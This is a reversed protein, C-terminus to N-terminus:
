AETWSECTMAEPCRECQRKIAAGSLLRINVSDPLDKTCYGHGEVMAYHACEPCRQGKKSRKRGFLGM